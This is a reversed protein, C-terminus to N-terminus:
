GSLALLAAGGNEVNGPVDGDFGSPGIPGGGAPHDAEQAMRRPDNRLPHVLRSLVVRTCGVNKWAAYGAPLDEPACAMVMENARGCDEVFTIDAFEDVLM